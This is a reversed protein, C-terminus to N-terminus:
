AGRSLVHSIVEATHQVIEAHQLLPEITRGVVAVAAVPRGHILIPAALCATGAAHEERDLAFGKRRIEALEARLAGEDVITTDTHRVLPQSQLYARLETESIHALNAKGIASCYAPATKGFRSYITPLSPKEVGAIYLMQHRHLIGLSVREGTTRALSELHPLSELRLLNTDLLSAALQLVSYGPTIRSDGPDQALYGAGVLTQILRHATPRTVGARLAVEAVTLPREAAAFADLIALAKQLTKVASLDADDAKKGSRYTTVNAPM